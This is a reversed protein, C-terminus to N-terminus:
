GEFTLFRTGKNVLGDFMRKTEAANKGAIREVRCGNAELWEEVMTATSASGGVITVFEAHIADTARFGITPHFTAIYKQASRWNKAALKGNGAPFLMYQYMPKAGTSPRKPQLVQDGSVEVADQAQSAKEAEPPQAPREAELARWAGEEESSTQAEEDRAKGVEEAEWARQAEQAKRAEEAERARQEELAKRAAEAERANQEEQAKRAEEAERARQEELAKRAEEAERARQEELAKRAEEAERAEQEERAKREEEAKRAKEAEQADQAQEAAQAEDRVRTIAQLLSDKWMQGELWMKGPCATEMFEKHGKVASLDLQLLDLLWAVLQAGANIQDQPPVEVTFNGLFCIGVGFPNASAAHHSITELDNTQFITGEAGVLFHYGIGPWDWKSIHYQAIREPTVNPPTASHHIVLASINSRLRTEYQETEHKPLKDVVYQIAPMRVLTETPLTRLKRIQEMLAAIQRRLTAVLESQDERLAAVAAEMAAGLERSAVQIAEVQEQLPQVLERAAGGSSAPASELKRLEDQLNEVEKGLASILGSLEATIRKIVPLPQEGLTQIRAKLQEIKARSTWAETGVAKLRITGQKYEEMALRQFYQATVGAEKVEDTIPFGCMALGHREFFELFSGRVMRNTKYFFRERVVDALKREMAGVAEVVPLMEGGEKSWAFPAWTPDPSSGIFASASGLYFYRNLESYYRVYQTAMDDASLSPTSDGFETIEITENPFRKHYLKFRLGWEDSLMNGLQWYCHCGLWDSARVADQCIDLWELDRHPHNLALGPFGFKAWPCARKLSALVQLYWSRFDRAHADTPGWGELGTAHNPENHIEFKTAYPKLQEILPVMKAVFDAPTPRSNHHLRDDYLRVIFELDPNVQRLRQYVSPNTLSMMKMTEIRARRVLELDHQTLQVSNRANLGVRIRHKAM